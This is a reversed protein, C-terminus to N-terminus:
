GTVSRPIQLTVSASHGDPGSHTRFTPTISTIEAWESGGTPDVHGPDNVEISLSDDDIKLRAHIRGKPPTRRVAAAVLNRAIIEADHALEPREAVTITRAQYRAECYPLGNRASM